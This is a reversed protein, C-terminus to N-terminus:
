VLTVSADSAGRLVPTKSHKVSAFIITDTLDPAEHGEGGKGLVLINTRGSISEIKESPTFIFDSVFGIYNGLGTHRFTSSFLVLLVYVGLSIGAVIGARVLWLHKLTRRKLRLFFRARKDKRKRRTRTVKKLIEGPNVPRNNMDQM